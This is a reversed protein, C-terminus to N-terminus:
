ARASGIGARTTCQWIDVLDRIIATATERGGAGRGVLSVEGTRELTLTVANMSGPVDLPSGVPVEAPGVRVGEADIQGILKVSCRRERAQRLHDLPIGRIGTIRVQPLGVRLRMAHNALIVIKAATDLGDIDNSPDTEAYGLRVAEALAAEFTEAHDAMRTLIFNTTGNLVARTSLIRDGLTCREAWALVPTGAGVTGSYRLHVRNYSAVEVLAPMATALPAKNVCVAHCGLAMAARLREIARIPERLNTPTTEIIVEAGSSRISEVDEGTGGLTGWRAMTGVSGGQEKHQLVAQEDLGDPCICRGRSDAVGVLRPVLGHRDSLARREEAMLRLLHRGVVGVGFLFVRM